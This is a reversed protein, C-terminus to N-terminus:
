RGPPSCPATAEVTPPACAPTIDAAGVALIETDAAQPVGSGGFLAVGGIALAVAAGAIMAAVTIPKQQM